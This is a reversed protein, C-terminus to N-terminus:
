TITLYKIQGIQKIEDVLIISSLKIGTQEIQNNYLFTDLMTKM